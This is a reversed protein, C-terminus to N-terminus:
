LISMFISKRYKLKTDRANAPEMPIVKTIRAHAKGCYLYTDAKNVQQIFGNNNMIIIDIHEFYIIKHTTYTSIFM